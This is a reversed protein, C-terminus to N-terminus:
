RFAGHNMPGLTTSATLAAGPQGVDKEDLIEKMKRQRRGEARM